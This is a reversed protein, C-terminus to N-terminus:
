GDWPKPQTRPAVMPGATPLKRETDEPEPPLDEPAKREMLVGEQNRWPIVAIFRFGQAGANNLAEETRQAQSIVKYEYTAM